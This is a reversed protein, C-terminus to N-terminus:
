NGGGWIQEAGARTILWGNVTEVYEEQTLRKKVQQQVARSTIGYKKAVQSTTMLEGVRILDLANKAMLGALARGEDVFYFDNLFALIRRTFEALQKQEPIIYMGDINTGAGGALGIIINEARREKKYEETGFGGYMGTALCSVLGAYSCIDINDADPYTNKAYWLAAALIHDTSVTVPTVGKYEHEKCWAALEEPEPADLMSLTVEKDLLKM